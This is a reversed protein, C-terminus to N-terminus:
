KIPEEITLKSLEFNVAQTEATVTTLLEDIEGTRADTKSAKNLEDTINQQHKRIELVLASITDLM